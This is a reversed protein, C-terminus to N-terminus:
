SPTGAGLLAACVCGVTSMATAMVTAIRAPANSHKKRQNCRGHGLHVRLRNRANGPVASSSGDSLASMHWEAGRTRHWRTCRM